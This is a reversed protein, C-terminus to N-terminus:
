QLWPRGGSFLARNVESSYTLYILYFLPQLALNIVCGNSPVIIGNDSSTYVEPYFDNTRRRPSTFLVHSGLMYHGDNLCLIQYYHNNRVYLVSDKKFKM